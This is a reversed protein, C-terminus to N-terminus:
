PAQVDREKHRQRDRRQELILLTLQSWGAVLAGGVIFVRVVDQGPYDPWAFALCANVALAAIVSKSLLLSRGMATAYWKSRAMYLIVFLSYPLAVALYLWFPAPM